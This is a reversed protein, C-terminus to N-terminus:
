HSSSHVSVEVPHNSVSGLTCPKATLTGHAVFDSFGVTHPCFKLVKSFKTSEQIGTTSNTCQDATPWFVVITLIENKAFTTIWYFLKLLVKAMIETKPRSKMWVVFDQHWMTIQQRKKLKKVHIIRKTGKNLSSGCGVDSNISVFVPTQGRVQPSFICNICFLLPTLAM